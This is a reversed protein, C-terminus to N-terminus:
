NDTNVSVSLLNKEPRLRWFFQAFDKPFIIFFAFRFAVYCISFFLKPTHGRHTNARSEIKQMKSNKQVKKEIKEHFFQNEMFISRNPGMPARPAWQSGKPGMPAWPPGNPGMPAWQSGNPGMPAWQSGNPQCGGITPLIAFQCNEVRETSFFDM